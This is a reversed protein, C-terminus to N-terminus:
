WTRRDSDLRSLRLNFRVFSLEETRRDGQQYDQIGDSSEGRALQKQNRPVGGLTEHEDQQGRESHCVSCFALYLLCLPIDVSFPNLSSSVKHM